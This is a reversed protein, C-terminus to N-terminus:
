VALCPVKYSNGNLKITFYSTPIIASAVPTVKLDLTGTGVEKPNIILNTGDYYISADLGQGFFFKQNDAAAAWDGAYSYYSYVPAGTGNGDRTEAYFNYVKSTSTLLESYVQSYNGYINSAWDSYNFTYSIYTELGYLDGYLHGQVWGNDSFAAHFYGASYDSIQINGSAKDIV